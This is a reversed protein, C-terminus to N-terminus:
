EACGIGRSVGSISNDFGGSLVVPELLDLVQSNEARKAEARRRTTKFDGFTDASSLPFPGITWLAPRDSLVQPHRPNVNGVM